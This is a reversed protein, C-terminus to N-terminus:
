GAPVQGTQASQVAQELDARSFAAGFGGAALGAAAAEPTGAQEIVRLAAQAQHQRQLGFEAKTPAIQKAFEAAHAMIYGAEFIGGGAGVALGGATFGGSVLAPAFRPLAQTLLAPALRKAGQGLLNLGFSGSLAAAVPHEAAFRKMKDLTPSIDEGVGRE